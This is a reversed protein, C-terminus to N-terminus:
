ASLSLKCVDSFVARQLYGYDDQLKSWCYETFNSKKSNNEDSITSANTAQVHFADTLTESLAM